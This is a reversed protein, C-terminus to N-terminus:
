AAIIESIENPLPLRASTGANEGEGNTGYLVDELKKLEELDIKTSDIIVHATPKYGDVPVPTTAIEFSFEAPDPNDNISNYDRSSPSSTAGYILHLKYGHDINETDNGIKTRYCLGFTARTQQTFSIGKVYEAEGNCVGWEDPYTYCGITAAFDEASKINLYKINDAYYDNNDGGTPSESVSTIGNWAVGEVYAQKATDYLYLVAHDVGTEYLHEGVKDWILRSM